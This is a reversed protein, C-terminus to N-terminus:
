SCLNAPIPNASLDWEEPKFKLAEQERDVIDDDLRYPDMETARAPHDKRLPHGEWTPPTYIRSLNPHGTFVVGFMDWCEREHWNAAPWLSIITPINLDADKLAVKLRIDCNGSYSILQYVVTFESDPQGARHVRLREDIATVDLLMEYRPRYDDRLFKLVELLKNRGLWLTPMDEATHQRVFSSEGFKLYLEAIVAPVDSMNQQAPTNNTSL